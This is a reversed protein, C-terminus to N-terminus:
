SAGDFHTGISLFLVENFSTACTFMFIYFPYGVFQNFPYGSVFLLIIPQRLMHTLPPTNGELTTGCSVCTVNGLSIRIRKRKVKEEKKNEKFFSNLSHPRL